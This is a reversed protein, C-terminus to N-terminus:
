DAGADLATPVPRAAMVSFHGGAGAWIVVKNDPAKGRILDLSGLGLEAGSKLGTSYATLTRTVFITHDTGCAM